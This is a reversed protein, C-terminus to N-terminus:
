ATLNSAFVNEKQPLKWIQNLHGILQMSIGKMSKSM